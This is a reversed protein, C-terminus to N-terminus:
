NIQKLRQTLAKKLDALYVKDRIITDLNLIEDNSLSNLLDTPSITLKMKNVLDIMFAVKNDEKSIVMFSVDLVDDGFIQKIKNRFIQTHYSNVKDTSKIKDLDKGNPISFDKHKKIFNDAYVYLIVRGKRLLAETFGEDLIFKRFAELQDKDVYKLKKSNSFVTPNNLDVQQTAEPSENLFESFTKIKKM